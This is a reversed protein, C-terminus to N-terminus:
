KSKNYAKMGGMVNVANYGHKLLIQTALRSRNGSRCIVYIKKDKYPELENVKQDLVQVPINIVGNIHGLPGNLEPPTRVDLIVFNSDKEMATKLDQVTVNVIEGSKKEATATEQQQACSVLASFTMIAVTLLTKTLHM